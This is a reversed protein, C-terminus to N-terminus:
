QNHIADVVDFREKILVIESREGRSDATYRVQEAVLGDIRGLVSDEVVARRGLAQLQCGLCRLRLVYSDRNSNEIMQQATALTIKDAAANVYRVRTIGGAAPNENRLVSGYANSQQFKLRIESLLRYRKQSEKLAYYVIGGGQDSFVATGEPREGNLFARGDGTVRPECGYRSRCFGRLVQWHSMGKDIRLTDFYPTTDTTVPVIGFPRLHRREMLAADPDRYTVPEAENDLLGAAPSRANLRLLLGAATKETAINDLQGCFVPKDGDFAKIGDAYRRLAGDYPCCVTLSDAPVREDCDLDITLVQVPPLEKGNQDTVIIRLM